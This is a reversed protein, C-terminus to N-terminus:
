SNFTRDEVVIKEGYAPGSVIFTQLGAQSSFDNTHVVTKM